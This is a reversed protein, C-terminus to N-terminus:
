KKEKKSLNYFEKLKIKTEDDLLHWRVGQIAVELASLSRFCDSSDRAL